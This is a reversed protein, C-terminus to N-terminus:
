IHRADPLPPGRWGWSFPLGVTPWWSRGRGASPASKGAAPQVRPPEGACGPCGGQRPRRAGLVAQRLLVGAGALDRHFRGPRCQPGARGPLRDM